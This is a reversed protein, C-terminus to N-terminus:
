KDLKYKKIPPFEIIQVSDINLGYFDKIVDRLLLMKEKAFYQINEEESSFNFKFTIYKWGWFTKRQIHFGDQIEVFRIKIIENM